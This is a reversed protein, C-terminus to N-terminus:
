VERISVSYVIRSGMMETVYFFFDKSPLLLLGHMVGMRLRYTYKRDSVGIKRLVSYMMKCGIMRKVYLNM